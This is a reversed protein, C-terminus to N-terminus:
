NEIREIMWYANEDELLSIAYDTVKKWANTYSEDMIDRSQEKTENTMQNRLIITFNWFMPLAM